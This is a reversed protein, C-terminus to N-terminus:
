LKPQRDGQLIGFGALNGAMRLRLLNEVVLTGQEIMQEFGQDAFAFLRMRAAPPRLEGTFDLGIFISDDAANM